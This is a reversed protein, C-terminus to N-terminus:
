CIAGLPMRNFATHTIDHVDTYVLPMRSFATHTIDHVDTYVLPMRSFAGHTISHVDTNVYWLMHRTVSRQKHLLYQECLIVMGFSMRSFQLCEREGERRTCYQQQEGM